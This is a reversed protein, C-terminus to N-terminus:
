DTTIRRVISPSMMRNFDPASSSNGSNALYLVSSDENSDDSSAALFIEAGEIEFTPESSVTLQGVNSEVGIQFFCVSPLMSNGSLITM